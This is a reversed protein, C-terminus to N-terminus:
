EGGWIYGHCDVNIYTTVPHVVGNLDTVNFARRRGSSVDYHFRDPVKFAYKWAREPPIAGHREGRFRFERARVDTWHTGSHTRTYHRAEFADLLTRVESLDDFTATVRQARTWAQGVVGEADFSPEPLMLPSSVRQPKVSKRWEEEFEVIEQVAITFADTGYSRLLSREPWVLRHRAYIQYEFEKWQRYLYHFAVIHAGGHSADDAIELVNDWCTSLNGKVDRAQLISVDWGPIEIKYGAQRQRVAMPRPIGAIILRPTSM